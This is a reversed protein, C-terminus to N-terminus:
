FREKKYHNFKLLPTKKCYGGQFEMMEGCDDASHKKSNWIWCEKYVSTKNKTKKDFLFWKYEYFGKKKNAEFPKSVMKFDIEKSLNKSQLFLLIM